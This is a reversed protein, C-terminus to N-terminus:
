LLAARKVHVALRKRAHYLRSMVSGAPIDLIEAIEAYSLQQSFRLDLIERQLPPLAAIMERAAEIRDDPVPSAAPVDDFLVALETPLLRHSSAKETPVAPDRM